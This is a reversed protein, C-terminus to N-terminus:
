GNVRIYDMMMRGEARRNKFEHSHTGDGLGIDEPCMVTRLMCEVHQYSFPRNPVGIMLIRLGSEGPLIPEDCGLCIEDVPPDIRYRLDECITAPRDPSPWQEGFWRTIQPNPDFTDEPMANIM